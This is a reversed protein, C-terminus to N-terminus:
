INHLLMIQVAAAVVDGEQFVIFTQFFSRPRLQLIELRKLRRLASSFVPPVIDSPDLQAERHALKLHGARNHVPPVVSRVPSRAAPGARLLVPPLVWAVRLDQPLSRSLHPAHEAALVHNARVIWWSPM